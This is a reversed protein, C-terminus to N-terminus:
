AKSNLQKHIFRGLRTWISDSVGLFVHDTGQAKRIAWYAETKASQEARYKSNLAKVKALADDESVYEDIYENHLIDVVAFARGNWIHQFPFTEHMRHTLYM